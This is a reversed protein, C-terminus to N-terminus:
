IAEFAYLTTIGPENVECFRSAEEKKEEETWVGDLASFLLENTKNM